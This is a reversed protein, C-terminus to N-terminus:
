EGAKRDAGQEENMGGFLETPFMHRTEVMAGEEDFFGVGYCFDANILLYANRSEWRKMGRRRVSIYVGEPLLYTGVFEKAGNARAHLYQRQWMDHPEFVNVEGRMMILLQWEEEGDDHDMVKWKIGKRGKVGETM